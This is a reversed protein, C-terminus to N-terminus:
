LIASAPFFFRHVPLWNQGTEPTKSAVNKNLIKSTHVPQSFFWHVQLRNKTEPMKPAGIKKPSYCRRKSPVGAKNRSRHVGGSNRGRRPVATAMRKWQGPLCERPPSRRKGRIHHRGRRGRTTRDAHAVSFLFIFFRLIPRSQINGTNVLLTRNPVIM